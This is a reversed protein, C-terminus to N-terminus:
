QFLRSIHTSYMNGMNNVVNSAMKNIHFDQHKVPMAYAYMYM